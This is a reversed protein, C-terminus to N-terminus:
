SIHARPIVHVRPDLRISTQCDFFFFAKRVCVTSIITSVVKFITSELGLLDVNTSQFAWSDYPIIGMSTASIIFGYVLPVPPPM